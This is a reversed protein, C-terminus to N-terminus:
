KCLGKDKMKDLSKLYDDKELPQTLVWECFKKLGQKFDVKPKYGLIHEAKSIDACNHRIDDM